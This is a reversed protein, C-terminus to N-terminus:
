RGCNWMPGIPTQTYCPGFGGGNWRGRYYGPGGWGYYWRGRYWYRPRDGYGADRYWDRSKPNGYRDVPPPPEYGPLFGYGSPARRVSRRAKAPKREASAKGSPSATASEPTPPAGDAPGPAASLVAPLWLSSAVALALAFKRPM